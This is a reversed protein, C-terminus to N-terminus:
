AERALAEGRLEEILELALRRVGHVLFARVQHEIVHVDLPPQRREVQEQAASGRFGGLARHEVVALADAIEGIGVDEGAVQQQLVEADRAVAAHDEVIVVLQAAHGVAVEAVQRAGLAVLVFHAGLGPEVHALAIHKRFREQTEEGEVVRLALRQQAQVALNEGRPEPPGHLLPEGLALHQFHQGVM